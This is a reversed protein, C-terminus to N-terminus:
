PPPSRGASHYEFTRDRHAGFLGAQSLSRTPGSRDAGVRLHHPQRAEYPSFGALELNQEGVVRDRM